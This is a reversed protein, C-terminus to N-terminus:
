LDPLTYLNYTLPVVEKKNLIKTIDVNKLLKEEIIIEKEGRLKKITNYDIITIKCKPNNKIENYNHKMVSKYFLDKADKFVQELHILEATKDYYTILIVKNNEFLKIIDEDKITITKKSRM